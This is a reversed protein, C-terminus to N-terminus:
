LPAGVHEPTDQPALRIQGRLEVCDGYRRARQETARKVLSSLSGCVRDRAYKPCSPALTTTTLGLQDFSLQTNSQMLPTQTFLYRLPEFRRRFRIADLPRVAKGYM